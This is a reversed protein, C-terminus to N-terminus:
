NKESKKGDRSEAAATALQIEANAQKLLEKAKAAHGGLDYENAKQAAELKDFAQNALKQAAALNPHGKAKRTPEEALALSLPAAIALAVIAARGISFRM